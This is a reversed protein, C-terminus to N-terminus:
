HKYAFVVLKNSFDNVAKLIEYYAYVQEPEEIATVLSSCKKYVLCSLVSYLNDTALLLKLESKAQLSLFDQLLVKLIQKFLKYVVDKIFHRKSLVAFYNNSLPNFALLL